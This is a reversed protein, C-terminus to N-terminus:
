AAVESAPATAALAGDRRALAVFLEHLTPEAVEIRAEPFRDVLARAATGEGVFAVRRGAHVAALWAPDIV